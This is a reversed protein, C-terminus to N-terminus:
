PSFFFSQMLPTKNTPPQNKKRAWWLLRQAPQPSPRAQPLLIPFPACPGWAAGTPVYGEGVVKGMASSSVAM